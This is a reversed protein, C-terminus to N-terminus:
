FYGACSAPVEVGPMSAACAASPAADRCGYLTAPDQTADGCVYRVADVDCYSPPSACFGNGMSHVCCDGSPPPNCSCGEQCLTHAVANCTSAFDDPYLGVQTMLHIGALNCSHAIQLAGAADFQGEAPGGTCSRVVTQVLWKGDVLFGVSLGNTHSFVAAVKGDGGAAIAVSSTGYVGTVEDITWTTGARLAHKVDGAARYVLHSQGATDIAFALSQDTYLSVSPVATEVSIAGAVTAHRLGHVDRDDWAVRVETGTAAIAISGAIQTTKAVLSVTWSGANYTAVHVGIMSNAVGAFAVHPTGDASIALPGDKASVTLTDINWTAGTRHAIALKSSTDFYSIWPTGDPAVAVHIPGSGISTTVQETTWAAGRTALVLGGAVYAIIPGAGLAVTSSALMTAVPEGAYRCLPCQVTGDYTAGCGNSCASAVPSDIVPNAPGGGCAALVVLTCITRM